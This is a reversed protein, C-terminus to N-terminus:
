SLNQTIMIKVKLAISSNSPNSEKYRAANIGWETDLEDNNNEYPWVVGIIYAEEGDGLEITDSSMDFSITFPYDNALKTILQDSTM